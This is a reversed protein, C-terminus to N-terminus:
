WPSSTHPLGNLCLKLVRYHSLCLFLMFYLFFWFCIWIGLSCLQLWDWFKQYNLYACTSNWPKICYVSWDWILELIDPHNVTSWCTPFTNQFLQYLSTLVPSINDARKKTLIRAMATKSFCTRVHKDTKLTFAPQNPETSSNQDSGMIQDTTKVQLFQLRKKKTMNLQHELCWNLAQM